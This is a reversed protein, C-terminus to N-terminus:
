EEVKDLRDALQLLNEAIAALEGMTDNTAAGQDAADIQDLRETMDQQAADAAIVAAQWMMALLEVAENKAAHFGALFEPTMEYNAHLNQLRNLLTTINERRLSPQFSPHTTM